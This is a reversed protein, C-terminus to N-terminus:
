RRAGDTNHHPNIIHYEEAETAATAKKTTWRLANQVSAFELMIIRDEISLSKWTHKSVKM